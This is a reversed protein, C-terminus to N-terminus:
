YRYFIGDKENDTLECEENKQERSLDDQGDLM